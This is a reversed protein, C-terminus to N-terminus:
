WRAALSPSCLDGSYKRVAADALLVDECVGALDRQVARNGKGGWGCCLRFPPPVDGRRRLIPRQDQDIEPDFANACHRPIGWKVIFHCFFVAHPANVVVLM